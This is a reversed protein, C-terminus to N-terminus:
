TEIGTQTKERDRRVLVPFGVADADVHKLGPRPKRGTEVVNDDVLIRVRVPKLGPRPKRGTEVMGEFDGKAAKSFTEIGTQTKERDRSSAPV